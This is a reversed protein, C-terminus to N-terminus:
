FFAKKFKTWLNENGSKQKKNDKSKKKSKARVSIDKNAIVLGVATAWDPNRYNEQIGGYNELRGVRVASTQFVSKALEEVGPLLASGGTLIINGSLEQISSNLEIAEYVMSFIEEMRPQIVACLDSRKFQIPSAGAAGAVIIDEDEEQAMPLWCCGSKMKIEEAQQKLIGLVIAIDSTVLNGGVPISATCVPTGDVIVIVDTTGGGLDILISGLEKEDEHMIAGTVALTKLMALDLELRARNLCNELTQLVTSSATIIHVEVDLRVGPMHQPSKTRISNGTGEPLVTFYGPIVHITKTGSQKQVATAAEYVKAIDNDNIERGSPTIAVGGTANMSQVINGGIGTVVSTIFHGTKLEADEVVERIVNAVEEINVIIGNRVGKTAKKFVGVIIVNREGTEPNEEIEGVAARIFCSGIDLGVVVEDSM